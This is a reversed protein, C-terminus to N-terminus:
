EKLLAQEYQAVATILGKQIVNISTTTNTNASM